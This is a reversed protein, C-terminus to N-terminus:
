AEKVKKQIQQAIQKDRKRTRRTKINECLKLKSDLIISGDRETIDCM